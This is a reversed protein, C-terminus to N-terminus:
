EVIEFLGCPLPNCNGNDDVLWYEDGQDSIDDVEYINGFSVLDDWADTICRVKSPYEIEITKKQM